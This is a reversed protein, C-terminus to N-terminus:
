VNRPRARERSWATVRAGMLGLVISAWGKVSLPRHKLYRMMCRVGYARQGAMFHWRAAGAAFFCFAETDAAEIAAGHEEMLRRGVAAATAADRLMKAMSSRTNRNVANTHALALIDPYFQTQYLRSFDFHYIAGFRRGPPYHAHEFTHRQTVPLFDAGHRSRGTWRVMGAYDVREEVLPPRPSLGGHDYRYMFGMRAVEPPLSQACAHIRSLAGELLEEDSDLFVCWEGTAHSVGTNRALWHGSNTEHRVLVVRPDEYAAVIEPTGDTSADDVVVVELDDFDQSLCSDISAKTHEPRNYTPIIISFYPM